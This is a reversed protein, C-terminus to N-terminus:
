HLSKKSEFMINLYHGFLMLLAGGFVFWKISEDYFYWGVFMILPLRLFDIPVVVMADALTLAKAMCYHAVLGAAAIVILWLWMSGSPVHWDVIALCFGIPLQILTMYFVITLPSDTIALSRTLTHSLGYFMAGVLVAIAAPHIIEIGPQLIILVGTFGFVIAVVRSTTLTEKLLIVALLATWIPVTFELAFVEALPIFAIGYVWGYQGIFHASNRIIHKTLIRTKLPKIGTRSIIVAIIFL